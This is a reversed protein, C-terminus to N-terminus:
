ELSQVTNIYKKTAEDLLICGLKVFSREIDLLTAPNPDSKIHLLRHMAIASMTEYRDGNQGTLIEVIREHYSSAAFLALRASEAESSGMHKKYLEKVYQEGGQTNLIHKAEAFYQLKNELYKYTDIFTGKPMGECVSLPFWRRNGTTDKLVDGKNTTAIFISRRPVDKEYETYLSRWSDSSAVLLKKANEDGTGKFGAMEELEFVTTAGSHLKRAMATEDNRMQFTLAKSGLPLSEVFFSKGMGQSSKLIITGHVETEHKYMMRMTLSLMLYQGVDRTYETDKTRLIDPALRHLRPVGDWAPLADIQEVASDSSKDQLYASLNRSITDAADSNVFHQRDKRFCNELKTITGEDVLEWPKDSGAMRFEPGPRFTDRRFERGGCLEPYKFRPIINVRDDIIKLEGNKDAKWVWEPDDRWSANTEEEPELAVDAFDDTKFGFAEHLHGINKGSCHAHLCRYNAPQTTTAAMYTSTTIGSPGSHEHSWPCEVFIKDGSEARVIGADRLVQAFPDLIGLATGLARENVGSTNLQEGTGLHDSLAQWLENFEKVSITPVRTPLGEPWFYRSGSSHMGFLMTQQRSGLFEVIGGDNKLTIKSKPLPEPSDVRVLLTGRGARGIRLPPMSSMNITFYDVVFATLEPTACDCDIAQIDRTVACIGLRNDERWKAVEKPTSKHLQWGKFGYAYGDTSITSPIKLATSIASNASVPTTPDCVSPLVASGFLAVACDWEDQSAGYITDQM